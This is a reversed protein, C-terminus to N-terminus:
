ISLIFMSFALNNDISKLKIDEDLKQLMKLYNILEKESYKSAKQKIAYIQKSTKLKLLEMIEEDQNYKLLKISLLKRINSALLGLIVIVEEGHNVMNNFLTIATKKDKKTIADILDFINSEINQHILKDIIERSIIKTDQSYNILKNLENMTRIYDNNTLSLFYKVDDKLFKYGLTKKRVLENLDLNIEIKEFKTKLLNILEKKNENDEEIKLSDLSIILTNESPTKIYNILSKINHKIESKKLLYQANKIHIIKNEEFFSYTDLDEIADLINTQEMDYSKINELKLEEKLILNIIEYQNNEILYMKSM